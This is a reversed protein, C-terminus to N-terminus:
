LKLAAKDEAPLNVIFDQLRKKGKPTVSINGNKIEVYNMLELEEILPILMEKVLPPYIELKEKETFEDLVKEVPIGQKPLVRAMITMQRRFYPVDIGKDSLDIADLKLMCTTRTDPCKIVIDRLVTREPHPPWTFSNPPQLSAMNFRDEQVTQLIPSYGLGDFKTKEPDEVSAPAYWIPYYYEPEVYRPGMIHMRQVKEGLAPWFEPCVRGICREGDFIIEDGRKYKFHCPYKSEDGIFGIVTAKVKFGM